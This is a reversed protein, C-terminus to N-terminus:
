KEYLKRLSEEISFGKRLYRLLRLHLLLRDKLPLFGTNTIEAQKDEGWITLGKYERQEFQEFINIDCYGYLLSYIHQINRIRFIHREDGNYELEETFPNIHTFSYSKVYSPKKYRVRKKKPKGVLYLSLDFLTSQLQAAM